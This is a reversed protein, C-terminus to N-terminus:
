GVVSQVTKVAEGVNVRVINSKTETVKVFERYTRGLIKALSKFAINGRQSKPILEVIKGNDRTWWLHVMGAGHMGIFVDADYAHQVQECISLQEAYIGSVNYDPFTKQLQSILEESNEWVRTFAKAQDGIRRKYPKREVVLMRKMRHGDNVSEEDIGCAFLVRRRFSKYDSEIGSGDCQLCKRKMTTKEIRCRFPPSGYAWPVLVLDEICLVDEQSFDQLHLTSPFLAKEFEPFLFSNNSEPLRIVTHNTLQKDKYVSLIMRHLNYWSLFKFYIHTEIGVYFFATGKIWKTCQLDQKMLSAMKIFPRSYDLPELFTEATSFVPTNCKPYGHDHLLWAGKSEMVVDHSSKMTKINIRKLSNCLHRPRVAVGALSCTGTSKSHPSGRCKIRSCVDSKVSYTNGIFSRCFDSPWDKGTQPKEFTFPSLSYPNHIPQYVPPYVRSIDPSKSINYTPLSPTDILQSPQKDITEETETMTNTTQDDTTIVPILPPGSSRTEVIVVQDPNDSNSLSLLLGLSVLALLIGYVMMCSKISGSAAMIREREPPRRRGGESHKAQKQKSNLKQFSFFEKSQVGGKGSM